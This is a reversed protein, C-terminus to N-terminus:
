KAVAKVHRKFTEQSYECFLKGDGPTSLMAASKSESTALRPECKKVEAAYSSLFRVAEDRRAVHAHPPSKVAEKAFAVVQTWKSPNGLLQDQVFPNAVLLEALYGYKESALESSWLPKNGDAKEIGVTVTAVADALDLVARRTTKSPPVGYPDDMLAQRGEKATSSLLSTDVAVMATM